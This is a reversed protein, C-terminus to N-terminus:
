MAGQAAERIAAISQAAKHGIEQYEMEPDSDAVIGAGVPVTFKNGDFVVMRIAICTDAEAGPGFYGVSGAYMGRRHHELEDIIQMARVKPAGSVTGAPFGAMFADVPDAGEKLKATVQSVIHMVHSYREVTMYPSVAVTGSEAVRGADNRALDVLMVHEAREKECAMLERELALDTEADDSRKGRTGAIPRLVVKGDRVKVLTEPSAGIIRREGFNVFFMYPSPSKVRLLRYVNFPDLDTEGEFRDALVVQFIDGARIYEKARSVSEMYRERPPPTITLNAKNMPMVVPGSLLERAQRVKVEAAESSEGLGVITSVRRWADFIVFTSPYILRAAPHESEPLPGLEEILRIADYGIYGMLSGVAPLGCTDGADLETRIKKVLEFFDSAPRSDDGITGSLQVEGPWLTLSALPDYAVISFRGVSEHPEVSELLVSDPREACLKYYATVPTETDSLVERTVVSLKM